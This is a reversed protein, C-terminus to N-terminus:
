GTLHGIENSCSLELSTGNRQWVTLSGNALTAAAAMEVLRSLTLGELLYRLLLIVVDHAVILIRGDPYGQRLDGLASRVRLAVDARSEGGPPRYYFRGLRHRRAAEEPMRASVGRATLGELIGLERDRLREDLLLPLRGAGAADAAAVAVEATEEARRYPSTVVADPRQSAPLAALWRGIAAAQDRGIPTLPVETDPMGLDVAEAGRAEAAPVVVNAESQGHRVAALWALEGM